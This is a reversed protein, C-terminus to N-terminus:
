ICGYGLHIPLVQPAFWNINRIAIFFFTRPLSVPMAVDTFSHKCVSTNNLVALALWFEEMESFVGREFVFMVRFGAMMFLLGHLLCYAGLM